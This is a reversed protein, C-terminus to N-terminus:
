VAWEITEKNEFLEMMVRLVFNILYSSDQQICYFAQVFYLEKLVVEM